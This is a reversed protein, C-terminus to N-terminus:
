WSCSSKVGSDLERPLCGALRQRTQLNRTSRAAHGVDVQTQDLIASGWQLSRVLAEFGELVYDQNDHELHSVGLM